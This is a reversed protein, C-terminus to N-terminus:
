ICIFFFHTIFILIWPVPFHWSAGAQHGQAVYPIFICVSDFSSLSESAVAARSGVQHTMVNFTLKQKESM